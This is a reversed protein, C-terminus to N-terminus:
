EGHGRRGGGGGSLLDRLVYSISREKNAFVLLCERM